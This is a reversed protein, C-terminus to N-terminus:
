LDVECIIDNIEKGIQTELFAYFKRRAEEDSQDTFCIECSSRDGRVEIVISLHGPEDDVPEFLSVERLTGEAPMAFVTNSGLAGRSPPPWESLKPHNYLHAKM